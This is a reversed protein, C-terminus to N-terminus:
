SIQQLQSDLERCLIDDVVIRGGGHITVTHDPVEFTLEWDDQESTVLTLLAGTEIHDYLTYELEHPACEETEAIAGVVTTLIEHRRTM